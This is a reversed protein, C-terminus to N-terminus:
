PSSEAIWRLNHKNSLFRELSFEKLKSAVYQDVWGVSIGQSEMVVALITLSQLLGGRIHESYLHKDQWFRLDSSDRKALIDPDDDELIWDLCEKLTDVANGSLESLIRTILLRPSSVQWVSGVKYLPSENSNYLIQLGKDFSAYDLGSLKEVLQKDGDRKEDWSGLLIAPIYYKNNNPLM